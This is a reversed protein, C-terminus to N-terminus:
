ASECQRTREHAVDISPQRFILYYLGLDPDYQHRSVHLLEANDRDNRDPQRCRSNLVTADGWSLASASLVEVISAPVIVPRDLVGIAVVFREFADFVFLVANGPILAIHLPNM